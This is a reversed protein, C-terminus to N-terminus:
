ASRKSARCRRCQSQPVFPQDEPGVRRFGFVEGIAKIGDATADCEEKPCCKHLLRHEIDAQSGVPVVARIIGKDGDDRGCVPCPGRIGRFQARMADRMLAEVDVSHAKGNLPAPDTAPQADLEEYVQCLARWVRLEVRRRIGDKTTKGELKLVAEHLADLPVEKLTERSERRKHTWDINHM